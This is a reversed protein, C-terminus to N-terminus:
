GPAPSANARADSYICVVVNFGCMDTVRDTTTRRIMKRKQQDHKAPQQRNQAAAAKAHDASFATEHNPLTERWLWDPTGQVKRIFVYINIFM